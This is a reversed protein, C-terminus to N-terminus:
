GTVPLSCNPPLQPLLFQQPLHHIRVPWLGAWHFPVWARTAWEIM